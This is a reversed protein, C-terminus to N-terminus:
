LVFRVIFNGEQKTGVKLPVTVLRGNQGAQATVKVEEGDVTVKPESGDKIGGIWVALEGASKVAVELAGGQVAPPAALGALTNFKDILGLVAVEVGGNLSLIPAVTVLDFEFAGLEVPLSPEVAAGTETVNVIRVQKSKQSFVAVRSTPTSDKATVQLVDSISVQDEVKGDGSRINWYGLLGGGLAAKSFVRLAKGTGGHVLAPDFVEKSAFPSSSAQLAVTEGSKSAGVLKNLILPDTKGPVDTITVPGPGLSRLAAHFAA